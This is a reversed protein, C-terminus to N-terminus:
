KGGELRRQQRVEQAIKGGAPVLQLIRAAQTYEALGIIRQDIRRKTLRKTIARMDAHPDVLPAPAVATVGVGTARVGEGEGLGVGTAVVGVGDGRGVGTAM